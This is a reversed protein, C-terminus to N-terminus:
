VRGRQSRKFFTVMDVFGYLDISDFAITRHGVIGRALETWRDVEPTALEAYEENAFYGLTVHPTYGSQMGVEFQERFRASLVERENVIRGFGKESEQGAPMLRAVLAQNGWKALKDFKFTVSWDSGTFLPSVKSNISLVLPPTMGFSNMGKTFFPTMSAM